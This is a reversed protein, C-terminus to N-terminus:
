DVEDRQSEELYGVHGCWYLGEADVGRTKGRRGDSWTGDENEREWLVMM